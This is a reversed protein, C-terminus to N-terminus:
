GTIISKRHRRPAPQRRTGSRSKIANLNRCVTIDIEQPRTIMEEVIINLLSFLSLATDSTDRLDIYGPHVAQNGIVRVLDLAQQVRVPLGNAVMAKINANLDGGGANLHKCLKQLALRAQGLLLV